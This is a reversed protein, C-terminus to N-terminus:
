LSFINYRRLKQIIIRALQINMDRFFSFSYLFPQLGPVTKEELKNSGFIAIRNNGEDTTLGEKTCRLQAFVEEIAVNEQEWECAFTSVVGCSMSVQIGEGKEDTGRAHVRKRNAIINLQIKSSV